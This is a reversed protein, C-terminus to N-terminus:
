WDEEDDDFDISRSGWETATGSSIDASTTSGSLLQTTAKIKIIDMSPNIYIKKM